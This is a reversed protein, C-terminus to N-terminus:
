AAGPGSYAAVGVPITGGTADLVTTAGDAGLGGYLEFLRAGEGALKRAVEGATAADPVAVFTAPALDDDHTAVDVAPDAGPHLVLFGGPLHEGRGFGAKYATAGDISEFGFAVAGVRARDGVAAQAAAQPVPGLGGCLEITRAGEAALDAAAQPVAAPDPVLVVTTTHGGGQFVFRDSSPDTGAAELIIANHAV